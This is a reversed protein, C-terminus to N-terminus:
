YGHQHTHRYAKPYRLHENSIQSRRSTQIIANLSTTVAVPFPLIKIQCNPLLSSPLVEIWLRIRNVRSFEMRRSKAVCRQVASRLELTNYALALLAALPFAAGFLSIFSLNELQSSKLSPDSSHRSLSSCYIFLQKSSAPFLKSHQSYLCIM